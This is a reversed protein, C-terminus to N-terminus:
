YELRAISFVSAKVSKGGMDLIVPYKRNRTKYDTIIGEHGDVFLAKAGIIPKNYDFGEVNRFYANFYNKAENTNEAFEIQTKINIEGYSLKFPKFELSHKEAIKEMAQQIELRVEKALEKTM